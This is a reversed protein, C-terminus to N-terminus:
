NVTLTITATPAPTVAPTGAGTVTFTYNGATTGTSGGGGGGSNHSGCASLSSLAAILVLLGLMARWARRRAPIGIFVLLALVAGGAGTLGPLGRRDLSASSPATTLINLTATGTTHTADFTLSSGSSISCTPVDQAGSPSSALSCTMAVTGSYVGDSTVTVTSTASGGPNVASPATAKM